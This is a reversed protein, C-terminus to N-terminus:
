SDYKELFKQIPEIIRAGAEDQVYHGVDPLEIVSHNKLFSRFTDLEKKRFAIDKGGWILLTPITEISKRKQWISELWESSGIIAKPFIWVGIRDKPTPTHNTLQFKHEKTLNKKNGWAKPIVMNGFFNFQLNLFKGISGGMFGSFREYHKDGKVSWMFTNFIILRKVNDPHDIAYNLGIPGGWDNVFFTINNLGKREIFEKLNESHDQPLYSFEPPKDSLGFGLHDIAICRYKASFAKILKRYSYSWVPNGHLFVLVAGTGEDVYHMRGAKLDIWKSTFPYENRDVWQPTKTEM